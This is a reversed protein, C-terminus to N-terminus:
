VLAIYVSSFPPGTAASSSNCNIASLPQVDFTPLAVDPYVNNAISFPILNNGAITSQVADYGSSLSIDNNQINNLFLNYIGGTCTGGLVNNYLIRGDTCRQIAPASLSCPKTTNTNEDICGTIHQRSPHYDLTEINSYNATNIKASKEILDPGRTHYCNGNAIGTQQLSSSESSLCSSPKTCNLTSHQSGCPEELHTMQGRLPKDHITSATQNLLPAKVFHNEKAAPPHHKIEKCFISYKDRIKLSNTHEKAPNKLISTNSQLFAAKSILVPKPTQQVFSFKHLGYVEDMEAADAASEIDSVFQQLDSLELEKRKLQLALLNSELAKEEFLLDKPQSEKRWHEFQLHQGKIISASNQSCHSDPHAISEDSARSIASIESRLKPDFKARRHYRILDEKDKYEAFLKQVIFRSHPNPNDLLWQTLANYYIDHAAKLSYALTSDLLDSEVVKDSKSYERMVDTLTKLEKSYRLFSRHNVFKSPDPITSWPLRIYELSDDDEASTMPKSTNGLFAPDQVVSKGSGGSAQVCKGSAQRRIDQSLLLVENDSSNQLESNIPRSSCKSPGIDIFKPEVSDYIKAEFHENHSM